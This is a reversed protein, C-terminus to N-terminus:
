RWPAEIFGNNETKHLVSNGTFRLLPAFYMKFLAGLLGFQLLHLLGPGSHLLVLQPFARPAPAPDQAKGARKGTTASGNAVANGTGGEDAVTGAAQRAAALTQATADKQAIIPARLGQLHIAEEKLRALRGRLAVCKAEIGLVCDENVSQVMLAEYRFLLNRVHAEAPGASYQLCVDVRTEAEGLWRNVFRICQADSFEVRAVELEKQYRSLLSGMGHVTLHLMRKAIEGLPEWSCIPPSAISRCSQLEIAQLYRRLQIDAARPRSNIQRTAVADPGLSGPSEQEEATPDPLPCLVHSPTASTSPSGAAVIAEQEHPVLNIANRARVAEERTAPLAMPLMIHHGRAFYRVLLEADTKSLNSLCTRSGTLGVSARLHEFNQGGGQWRKLLARLDDLRPKPNSTLWLEVADPHMGPDQKGSIISQGGPHLLQVQECVDTAEACRITTAPHSGGSDSLPELGGTRVMHRLLRTLDAQSLQSLAMRSDPGTLGAAVKIQRASGSGLWERALAYKRAATPRELVLWQELAEQTREVSEGRYNADIDGEALAPDEGVEDDNAAAPAGRAAAEGQPALGRHRRANRLETPTMVM